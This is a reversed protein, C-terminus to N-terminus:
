PLLDQSNATESAVRKLQAHLGTRALFKELPMAQADTAVPVLGMGFYIGIGVAGAVLTTIIGLVFGKWGAM